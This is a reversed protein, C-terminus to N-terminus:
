IVWGSKTALQGAAPRDRPFNEFFALAEDIRMDLVDAISRGRYRVELTQRNFRAGECVPCPVTLDPLFNMEIKQVGQGQCEECRGGKVNFSFRGPAIAASGPKARAPSCRASKTSCAPILPRIAGRRAASRRSTSRSWSTSRARARAAAIRARSPPWALGAAPGAGPGANRQDALEQGIRQVGTVGRCCAWRFGCSRHGEPQQDHGRRARAFANQGHAAARGARPIALQGSLYRGTISAPDAAVEAPTGQAVIRGGHLGAGPGIDILQRGGADDGRRTRGGAGHQGAAASERLADILRQNDRPHLGISPEDLVYCVGVLGSGIGTALRVRQLEGGSLTDAPRDLTLYEVGVKDLFDLRKGIEGVLPAGIPQDDAPSSSRPSFRRGPQGDLAAIEHIAKGALAALEPRPGCGRVAAPRRLGGRRSIDGAARAQGSRDATVYEQELLTSCASFRRATAAALLQERDKPKWSRRAAHRGTSAPRRRCFRGARRSAPKALRSATGEM